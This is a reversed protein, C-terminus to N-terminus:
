RAGALDIPLRRIEANMANADVVIEAMLEYHGPPLGGLDIAFMRDEGPQAIGALVVKGEGDIVAFRCEPASRKLVDPEVSTL